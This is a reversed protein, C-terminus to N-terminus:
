RVTRCYGDYVHWPDLGLVCFDINSGIGVFGLGHEIAYYVPFQMGNSMTSDATCYDRVVLGPEAYPHGSPRPNDISQMVFGRHWLTRESWAFNDMIHDIVGPHGCVVDDAPQTSVVMPGSVDAALAPAGLLAAALAAFFRFRMM